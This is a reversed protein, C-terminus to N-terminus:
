VKSRASPIMVEAIGFAISGKNGANRAARAMPLTSLAPMDGNSILTSAASARTAAAISARAGATRNATHCSFCAGTPGAVPGPALLFIFGSLGSSGVSASASSCSFLCFSSSANSLTPAANRRARRFSRTSVALALATTRSVTAPSKVRAFFFVGVSGSGGGGMGARTAFPSRSTMKRKCVVVSRQPSSKSSAASASASARPPAGSRRANLNLAAVSEVGREIRSAPSRAFCSM